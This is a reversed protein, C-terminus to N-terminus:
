SVHPKDNCLPCTAKDHGKTVGETVIRSLLASLSEGTEARIADLMAREEDSLEVALIAHTDEFAKM